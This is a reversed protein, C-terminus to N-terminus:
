SEVCDYALTPDSSAPVDSNGNALFHFVAAVAYFNIAVVAGAVGAATAATATAAFSHLTICSAVYRRLLNLRLGCVRKSDSRDTRGSGRTNGCVSQWAIVM